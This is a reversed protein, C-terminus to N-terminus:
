LFSGGTLPTKHQQQQQQQQSNRPVRHWLFSPKNLSLVLHFVSPSSSLSFTTDLSGLGLSHGNVLM